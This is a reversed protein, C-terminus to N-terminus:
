RGLPAAVHCPQGRLSDRFTGGDVPIFTLDYDRPRLRLKLVGSTSGDAAALNEVPGVEYHSAGGTGVVLERVGYRPDRGGAADLRFFRQYDHDHGTLVIDVGNDYAAQWLGQMGPDSGHHGGSWRPKHWYLLECRHSDNALDRRLWREQPSGPETPLESNLAVIHWAGLDFSRYLAPAREGFYSYFAAGGDTLYEHNGPVPYTIDKFAGWSPDYCNAFDAASGEPYANDGLTLVADPANRQVLAATQEDGNSDCSAIDGAAVVIVQHADAPGPSPENSSPGFALLALVLLTLM